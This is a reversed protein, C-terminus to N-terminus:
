GIPSPPNSPPQHPWGSCPFNQCLSPAPFRLVNRYQLTSAVPRAQKTKATEIRQQEYAEAGKHIASPWASRYQALTEWSNHDVGFDKMSAKLTDQFRKKQGGHCRVGTQLEGYVLREPLREESIRTVHRAWRLQSKRLMTFVSFMGTQELIETDPM